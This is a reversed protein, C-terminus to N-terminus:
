IYIDAEDKYPVIQECLVSEEFQTMGTHANYQIHHQPIKRVLNLNLMQFSNSKKLQCNIYRAGQQHSKQECTRM